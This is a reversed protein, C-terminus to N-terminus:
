PKGEVRHSGGASQAILWEASERWLTCRFRKRFFGLHGISEAGLDDPTYYRHEINSHLYNEILRDVARRPAFMDDAFSYLLVPGIFAGFPKKGLYAPTRAWQAWELGVGYPLDEGLGLKKAPFYGCIRTLGPMLLHCLLWFSWKRPFPWNGWYGEQAAVCLLADVSASNSALGIIQGGVSHAVVFLRQKPALRRKTWELIGAFDV